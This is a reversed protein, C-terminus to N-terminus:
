LSAGAGRALGVITNALVGKNALTWAGVPMRTIFDQRSIQYRAQWAARKDDVAKFILLRQAETLHALSGKTTEKAKAPMDEKTPQEEDVSPLFNVLWPHEKLVSAVDEEESEDDAKTKKGRAAGKSIDGVHTTIYDTLDAPDTECIAHGGSSFSCDTLLLPVQDPLHGRLDVFRRPKEIEFRITAQDNDKRHM